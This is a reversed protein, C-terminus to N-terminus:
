MGTVSSILEEKGERLESLLQRLAQSPAIVRVLEDTTPTVEVQLCPHESRIAPFLLKLNGEEDPEAVIITWVPVDEYFVDVDYPVEIPIDFTLSREGSELPKRLTPSPSTM